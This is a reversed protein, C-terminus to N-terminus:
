AAAKDDGEKPQQLAAAIQWKKFGIRAIVQKIREVEESSYWGGDVSHRLRDAQVRAAAGAAVLAAELRRLPDSVGLLRERLESVRRKEEPTVRRAGSLIARVAQRDEALRDEISERLKVELTLSNQEKPDVKLGVLRTGVVRLASLHALADAAEATTQSDQAEGHPHATACGSCVAYLDRGVQLLDGIQEGCRACNM